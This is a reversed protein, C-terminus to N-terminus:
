KLENLTMIDNQLRQIKYDKFKILDDILSMVYEKDIELVKLLEEYDVNIGIEYEKMLDKIQQVKIAEDQFSYALDFDGDQGCEESKNNYYYLAEDLLFTFSKTEILNLDKIVFEM